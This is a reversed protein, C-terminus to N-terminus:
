EEWSETPVDAPPPLSKLYTVLSWVATPSITGGFAPMGKPRGFYISSFVEADAGGYRWRGDALNPAVWGSAGGGHCGDCNMASFLAEGNKAAAQDGRLPNSLEVGGPTRGGASIHAEYQIGPPANEAAAAPAASQHQACSAILACGLISAACVSLTPKKKM